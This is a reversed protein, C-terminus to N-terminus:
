KQWVRKGHEDSVMQGTPTENPIHGSNELQNMQLWSAFIESEIEELPCQIDKTAM